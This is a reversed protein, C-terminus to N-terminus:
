QSNKFNSKRFDKNRKKPTMDCFNMEYFEEFQKMKMNIRTDSPEM